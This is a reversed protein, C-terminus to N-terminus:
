FLPEEVADGGIDVQVLDHGGGAALEREADEDAVRVWGRGDHRYWGSETILRSRGPMTM